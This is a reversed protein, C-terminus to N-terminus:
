KFWEEEDQMDEITAWMFEYNGEENTLSVLKKIPRDDNNSPAKNYRWWEEGYDNNQSRSLWTGDRFVIVLDAAVMQAGCSPDYDVDALVKFEAWSCTYFTSGIWDIDEETLGVLKMARETEDLLNEM